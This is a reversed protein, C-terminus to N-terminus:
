PRSDPMDFLIYQAEFDEYRRCDLQDDTLPAGKANAYEWRTLVKANILADLSNELPTQILRKWHGQKSSSEIEAHTPMSGCADLLARISILHNTGSEENHTMGHHLALKLGIAYAKDNRDDITLLAKPYPMLYANVLYSTLKETFQMYVRGNKIGKGQLVRVDAYDKRGRSKGTGGTESWSLSMSYLADLEANIKKRVNHMIGDIRKKEAAAEEPTSTSRPAIDIGRLTCYEELTFSVSTIYPPDSRYHNEASLRISGIDLLKKAGDPLGSKLKSYSDFVVTVPFQQLVATDKGTLQIQKASAARLANVGVGQLMNVYHASQEVLTNVQEIPTGEGFLSPDLKYKRANKKPIIGDNVMRTLESDIAKELLEQVPFDRLDKVEAGEMQAAINDSCQRIKLITDSDLESAEKKTAHCYQKIAATFCITRAVENLSERLHEVLKKFEEPDQITTDYEIDATM